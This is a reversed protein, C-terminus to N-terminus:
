DPAVIAVAQDVPLLAVLEAPRERDLEPVRVEHLEGAGEPDGPEPRSRRRVQQRGETSREVDLAGREDLDRDVVALVEPEGLVQARQGAGSALCAGSVRAALRRATIALPEGTRANTPRINAM